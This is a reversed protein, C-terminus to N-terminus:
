QAATAQLALWVNPHGALVRDAVRAAGRFDRRALRVGVRTYDVLDRAAATPTRRGGDARPSAAITGVDQAVRWATGISSRDMLPPRRAAFPGMRAGGVHEPLWAGFTDCPERREVRCGTVPEM